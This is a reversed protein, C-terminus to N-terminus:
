PLGGDPFAVKVAVSWLDKVCFGGPAPTAATSTPCQVELILHQQVFTASNCLLADPGKLPAAWRLVLDEDFSALVLTTTPATIERQGTFQIRTTAFVVLPNNNDDVAMAVVRSGTAASETIQRSAAQANATGTMRVLRFANSSSERFAIFPARRRLSEDAIAMRANSADSSLSVKGSKVLVRPSYFSSYLSGPQCESLTILREDNGNITMLSDLVPGNCQRVLDTSQEYGTATITTLTSDAGVRTVYGVLVGGDNELFAGAALAPGPPTAALNVTRGEWDFALLLDGLLWAGSGGDPPPPPPRGGDGLEEGLTVLVVSARPTISWRKGPIFERRPAVNNSAFGGDVQLVRGTSAELVVVDGTIFGPPVESAIVQTVERFLGVNRPGLAVVAGPRPLFASRPLTDGQAWTVIVPEAEPGADIAGADVVTVVGADCLGADCRANQGLEDFNVCAVFCLSLAPLLLKKM